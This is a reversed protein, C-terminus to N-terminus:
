NKNIVSSFIIQTRDEDPSNPEDPHVKNLYTDSNRVIKMGEINNFIM